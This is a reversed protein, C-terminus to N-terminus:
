FIKFLIKFTSFECQCICVVNPIDVTKDTTFLIRKNETQCCVKAWKVRDTDRIKMAKGKSNDVIPQRIFCYLDNEIARKAAKFNTEEKKQNVIETNRGGRFFHKFGLPSVTSLTEPTQQLLSFFIILWTSSVTVMLRIGVPFFFLFNKSLIEKTSPSPFLSSCFFASFLFKNLVFFIM